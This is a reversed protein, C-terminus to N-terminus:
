RRSVGLILIGPDNITFLFPCQKLTFSHSKLVTIKSSLYISTQYVSFQTFFRRGLWTYLIHWLFHPYVESSFFYSGKQKVFDFTVGIFPLFSFVTIDLLFGVSNSSLQLTTLSIASSLTFNTPANNLIQSSFVLSNVVFFNKLLYNKWLIM